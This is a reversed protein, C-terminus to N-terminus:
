DGPKKLLLMTPCGPYHDNSALMEIDKFVVEDETYGYYEQLWKSAEEFITDSDERIIYISKDWHEKISFSVKFLIDM